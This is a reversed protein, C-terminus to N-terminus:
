SGIKRWLPNKVAELRRFLEKAAEGLMKAYETATVM